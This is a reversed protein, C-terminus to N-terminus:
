RKRWKSFDNGGLSNCGGSSSGVSSDFSAWQKQMSRRSSHQTVMTFFLSFTINSVSNLTNQQPLTLGHKTFAKPSHLLFLLLISTKEVAPRFPNFFFFFFERWRPQSAPKIRRLSRPTLTHSTILTHTHTHTHTHTCLKICKHTKTPFLHLTDAQTHSCPHTHAHRDAIFLCVSSCRGRARRAKTCRLSALGGPALCRVPDTLIPM